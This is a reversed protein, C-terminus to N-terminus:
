PKHELRFEVTYEDSLSNLLGLIREKEKKPLIGRKCQVFCIHRKKTDIIVCDIISLSAASRFAILGAEKAKNVIEREFRIGKGKNNM